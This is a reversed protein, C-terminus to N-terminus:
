ATHEEIQIQEREQEHRREFYQAIERRTKKDMIISILVNLAILAVQFAINVINSVYVATDIPLVYAIVLKVVFECVLGIGWMGTNIRQTRRYNKSEDWMLDLMNRGTGEFNPVDIMEKGFHHSLPRFRTGRWRFPLLTFIFAIGVVVLGFSERVLLVRADGTVVAFIASVLFGFLVVAGFANLRRKRIIDIIVMLLAPVSGILLAYTNGVKNKLGYYLGLPAGVTLGLNVMLYLPTKWKWSHDVKSEQQTAAPQLPGEPESEMDLPRTDKM